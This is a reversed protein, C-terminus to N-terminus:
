LDFGNRNMHGDKPMSKIVRKATKKLHDMAKGPLIHEPKTSRMIHQYEKKHDLLGGGAVMRGWMPSPEFGLHQAALEKVLAHSYHNM